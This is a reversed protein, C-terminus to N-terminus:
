KVQWETFERQEDANLAPGHQKAYDHILQVDTDPIGNREAYKVLLPTQTPSIAPRETACGALFLVILLGTKM